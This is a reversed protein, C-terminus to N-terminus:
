YTITMLFMKQMVKVNLKNEIRNFTIFLYVDRTFNNLSGFWNDGIRIMFCLLDFYISLIFSCFCCFYCRINTMSIGRRLAKNNLGRKTVFLNNLFVRFDIHVTIIM